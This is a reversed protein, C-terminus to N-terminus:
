RQKRVQIPKQGDRKPSWFDDPTLACQEVMQLGYELRGPPQDTNNTGFTFLVGAEKAMKILAPGPLHLRDNIELAVNNRALADVLRRLREPTWLRDYDKALVDPLYTPNAYFDIPEHDLIDEITKVLREMFTQPDDIHVEEKMWLRTRRRPTDSLTMADAFVYDFKAVTEPSFHKPWERGEAQMGVFIPRGRMSKLFALAAKDDTIAFDVGCNAAVGSSIGTQNMRELVGDVSLGGRLHTHFDVLSFGQERLHALKRATEDLPPSAESPSSEALSKVKLDRILVEGTGGHGRVTITGRKLRPGIDLGRPERYDVLMQDDIWVRIRPVQVVVRVSFWRDDPVISRVIPRLWVLSGTKLLSRGPGPPGYSNDLRVEMGGSARPDKPSVHFTIGARGGPRTLVKAQLEFDRLDLQKDPGTYMIQGPGATYNVTLMGDKIAFAAETGAFRWERLDNGKLLPQWSDQTAPASAEVARGPSVFVEPGAVAVFMAFVGAFPISKRM